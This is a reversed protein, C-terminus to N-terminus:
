SETLNDLSLQSGEIQESTEEQPLYFARGMLPDFNTWNFNEEQEGTEAEFFLKDVQNLRSSILDGYFLCLANFTKPVEPSGWEKEGHHSLIMHRIEVALSEPFYSLRDIKSRILEEGLAIHGLLKGRDTMQFSPSNLDYEYIKGIDHLLSGTVLLDWNIRDQYLQYMSSVIKIVELSHEALGGLYNHHVKKGAPAKLYLSLLKQDEFITNLLETLYKNNINKITKRLEKKLEESGISSSPVFPTLDIDEAIAEIEDIIIQVGKYEQTKGKVWVITDEHVYNATQEAREWLVAKITGTNDRLRLLMFKEGTKKQTNFDMMKKEVVVFPADIKDGVNIDKVFQEKKMLNVEM